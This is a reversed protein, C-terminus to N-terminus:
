GAALEHFVSARGPVQGDIHRWSIAPVTWELPPKM